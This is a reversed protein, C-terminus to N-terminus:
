AFAPLVRQGLQEVTAQLEDMSEAVPIVGLHNVGAQELARIHEIVEDSTGLLDGARFHEVAEVETEGPHHALIRRFHQSRRLKTEAEAQDRGFCLWVQQHTEVTAPDRGLEVLAANMEAQAQAVREPPLSPAIWGDSLRAARRLSPGGSANLLLPFPRQIPKPALEVDSFRVYEGEFSARQQEFLLRLAALSEDLFRGRHVSKLTPQVAEIEDRYAGLGLGLMVRGATLVDLTAIQKALLVPERLPLILVSLMFRLRQTVNALSAFTIIPEYFNAPQGTTSRIVDPPTLHDNGWISYFGLEEARRALPALKRPEIFSVAYTQGERSTPFGLGIRIGM